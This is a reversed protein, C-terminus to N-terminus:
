RLLMGDGYSYFRYGRAIAQQYADLLRQRGVLASVLMLLTSGPLHFNTMLQDVVRFAFGPRIFLATEGPGERLLAAHAGPAQAAAASAELARVVTTGVALVPRGQARARTVAAVTEAPIAFREAHMQHASLDTVRVPQFTGPGVHLTVTAVDCGRAKIADLLAPTFHLGATPAAVAGPTHAFTTQYRAADEATAGGAREIYPPLPLDGFRGLFDHLNPADGPLAIRYRGAGLAEVVTVAATEGPGGAGGGVDVVTGPKLKKSSRAMAVVERRGPDDAEVVLLEVAGGTPVKRGRLRAPVVRTDNLVLLEDGRLLAPLDRVHQDTPEAGGARDLVMLRADDRRDAPRQAISAPPLHYEYSALSDDNPPQNVAHSRPPRPTTVAPPKM